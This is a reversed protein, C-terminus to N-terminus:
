FNSKKPDTCLSCPHKKYGKNFKLKAYLEIMSINPNRKIYNKIWTIEEQSHPKHSKDM